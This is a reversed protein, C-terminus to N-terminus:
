VPSPDEAVVSPAEDARASGGTLKTSLKVAKVTSVGAAQLAVGLTFLVIGPVLLFRVGILLLGVRNLLFGPSLVVASLAGGVAGTTVRDRLSQRHRAAILRAPVSVFTTMMVALVLGLALGYWGLGARAAYVTALAYALGVGVGWASLYGAHRRAEAFAPVLRPPPPRDVAIAFVANCWFSVVTVVVAAVAVGLVAPGHIFALSRGRLFHAKLNWTTIWIWLAPVLEVLSLRWNAILLKVGDVLLALSGAVYALPALWRRSRGLQRSAAEIHAPEAERVALVLRGLARALRPSATAAAGQAGDQEPAGPEPGNRGSAAGSGTM